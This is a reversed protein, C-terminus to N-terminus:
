VGIPTGAARRDRPTTLEDTGGAGPKRRRILGWPKFVSLIYATILLSPAVIVPFLLDSPVAATPDGAMLRQGISAAAGIGPRLAVVILTSMLVNVGLKVAVWWYRILGYKGGLGLVVGCALCLISAGFMPWVAFLEVAQVAMGATRPDDTVLATVLLIGLALDIGFWAAGSLIHVALFAKRTRGSLRRRPHATAATTM